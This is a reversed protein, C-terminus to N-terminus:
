WKVKLDDLMKKDETTIIPSCEADGWLESSHNTTGWRKTYEPKAYPYQAKTREELTPKGSGSYYSSYTISAPSWRTLVLGSHYEANHQNVLVCLLELTQARFLDNCHFCRFYKNPDDELM